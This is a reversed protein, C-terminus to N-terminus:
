NTIPRVIYPIIYYNNHSEIIIVRELIYNRNSARHYKMIFVVVRLVISKYM